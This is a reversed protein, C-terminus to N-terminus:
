RQVVKNVFPSTMASLLAAYNLDFAVTDGVNMAAEQTLDIILHDSTAGLIEINSQKPTLGDVNTDQRGVNLIARTMMGRDELQPINGFADQGIEGIPLSPKLKKEIIEAYLTFADQLTNGWTERNITERGLLIGEGIRFHNIREPIKGSALLKLSSSNGASLYQLKIKCKEEIEKALDVLQKNNEYTPITGNLDTLNTGLGIIEIGKMSVVEKVLPLLENPWVGERLDGLDVMIIIKHVFGKSLSKDSLAKIIEYESNLSVDALSVVREIESMHPSRMLLIPTDINSRRLREINDLRSEGIWDIGGRIMAQAVEVMGLTGKTVGAVQIGYKKCQDVITRTNQEIKCTDITIYPTQM